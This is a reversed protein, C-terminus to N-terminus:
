RQLFAVLADIGIKVQKWFLLISSILLAMYLIKIILNNTNSVNVYISLAALSFVLIYIKSTGFRMWIRSSAETRIFFYLLFAVASAVAAGSAGFIPILLWNGVANLILASIVAILYYITRRKINIGLGTAESLTYLLPYAIVALLISPLSGYAPPLLYVLVWSLLGTSAWVFTVVLAVFDIVTKVKALEMGNAAWKYVTPAWVTSFVAQFVLAIGAFSISVSYIGLEEYTSFSRLFVKDMTTLGWFSIGSGILPVAYRIMVKQKKRDVSSALAAIWDRQTNYAFFAFAVMLSLVHVAILSELKAQFGLLLFFLITVLFFIKAAVECLSYTLGREQMRLILSFFRSFFKAFMAFIVFFDLLLSEIDFLLISISWGSLTVTCLAAFILFLGPSIATKFLEPKNTTEHYERVYAQDMGLSFFLLSFTVSVNLMTLRGIDGASFYWTLLPISILALAATTVPGVAFSLVKKANM